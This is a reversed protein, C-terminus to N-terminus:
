DTEVAECLAAITRHQFVQRPSLPLGAQNARTSIQFILLSDGGVDFIDDHIGIQQIGLVQAWIGALTAQAETQPAAFTTGAPAARRGDCSASQTRCGRTPLTVCGSPRAGTM